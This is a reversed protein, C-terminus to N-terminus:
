QCTKRGVPSTVWAERTLIWTRAMGFPSPAFDGLTRFGFSLPPGSRENAQMQHTVIVECKGSLVRNLAQKAAAHVERGWGAPTFLTHLECICGWVDLTVFLFGGHTAALPLINPAGVFATIEELTHARGTMQIVDPDAAIQAWFAPDREERLDSIASRM